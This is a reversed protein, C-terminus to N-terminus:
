QCRYLQSKIARLEIYGREGRPELQIHSNSDDWEYGIMTPAYNRISHQVSLVAQAYDEENFPGGQVALYEAEPLTIIDFGDPIKGNYDSDVEVGHVYTSTNPKQYAKPLWLGIPEDCLSDMSM